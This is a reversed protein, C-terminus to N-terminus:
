TAADSIRGDVLTLVRDCEHAVLRDHTAILVGVDVCADRMARIVEQSTSQDIQGTPEDALLFPRTSSLARAISLRQLEGGSLDRARHDARGMLGLRDLTEAARDAALSSGLGDSLGGLAANDLVSRRGLATTTQLVWAVWSAAHTEVGSPWQVCAHGGQPRLMGGLISLLTTKGSGSPGMLAVWEGQAVELSVEDLVRGDRFSHSVGVAKLAARRAV